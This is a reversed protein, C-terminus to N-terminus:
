EYYVGGAMREIELMKPKLANKKVQDYLMSVGICYKSFGQPRIKQDHMQALFPHDDRDSDM